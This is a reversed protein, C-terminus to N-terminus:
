IIITKKTNSKSDDKFTIENQRKKNQITPLTHSMKLKKSVPEESSTEARSKKLRRMYLSLISNLMQNRQMQILNIQRSQKNVSQIEQKQTKKDSMEDDSHSETQQYKM